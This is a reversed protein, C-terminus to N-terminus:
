KQAHIQLGFHDSNKLKEIRTAVLESGRSSWVQLSVWRGPSCCKWEQHSFLEPSFNRAVEKWYRQRLDQIELVQRSIVRGLHDIHQLLQEMHLMDDPFFGAETEGSMSDDSDDIQVIEAGLGRCFAAGDTFLEPESIQVKANKALLEPTVCDITGPRASGDAEPEGTPYVPVNGNSVPGLWKNGCGCIWLSPKDSVVATKAAYMGCAATRSTVQRGTQKWAGTQRDAKQVQNVLVRDLSVKKKLM